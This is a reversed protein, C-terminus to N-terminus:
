GLHPDAVEAPAELAEVAEHVGHLGVVVEGEADHAGAGQKKFFNLPTRFNESFVIVSPDSTDREFFSGSSGRAVQQGRDLTGEGGFTWSGGSCGLHARGDVLHPGVGHLLGVFAPGLLHM